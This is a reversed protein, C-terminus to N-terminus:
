RQYIPVLSYPLQLITLALSTGYVDGVSDGMWGGDKRQQRLLWTSMKKYYPLWRSGHEM